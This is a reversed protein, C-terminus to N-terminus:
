KRYIKYLNLSTKNISEIKITYKIMLIDIGINENEKLIEFWNEKSVYAGELETNDFICKKFETNFLQASNLKSNRLNSELFITETLDTYYFCTNSLDALMFFSERLHAGSFNWNRMDRYLSLSKDEELFCNSLDIESEGLAVLRKILGRTRYMAEESKWFRYDNIEEKYREIKEKKHSISEYITLIIGFIILDFVLGHSEVLIDHFSFNNDFLDLVVIVLFGSSAIGIFFNTKNKILKRLFSM